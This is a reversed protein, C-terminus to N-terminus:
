KRLLMRRCVLTKMRIFDLKDSKEKAVQIKPIM